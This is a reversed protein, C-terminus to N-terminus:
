NEIEKLSVEITPLEVVFKKGHLECHDNICVVQCGILGYHMERACVPCYIEKPRVVARAKGIETM